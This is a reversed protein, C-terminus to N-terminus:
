NGNGTNFALGMGVKEKLTFTLMVVLSKEELLHRTTTMTQM